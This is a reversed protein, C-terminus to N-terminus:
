KIYIDHMLASHFTNLKRIECLLRQIPGICGLITNAQCINLYSEWIFYRNIGNSLKPSSFDKHVCVVSRISAGKICKVSRRVRIV